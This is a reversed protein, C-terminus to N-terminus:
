KSQSTGANLLEEKLEIMFSHYRDVFSEPIYNIGNVKIIKYNFRDIIRFRQSKTRKCFENLSIHKIGNLMISKVTEKTEYTSLVEQTENNRFKRANRRITERSVGLIETMETLSMKPHTWYFNSMEKQREISYSNSMVPKGEPQFKLAFKRLTKRDIGLNNAMGRTGVELNSWYYNAIDKQEELSYEFPM